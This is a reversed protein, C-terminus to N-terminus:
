YTDDKHNHESIPNKYIISWVLVAFYGIITWGTLINLVCMLKANSLKRFFAIFTPIFYLLLLAIGQPVVIFLLLILEWPGVNSILAM